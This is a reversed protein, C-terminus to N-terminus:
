FAPPPLVYRPPLFAHQSRTAPIVAASRSANTQPSQYYSPAANQPVSRNRVSAQRVPAPSASRPSAGATRATAARPVAASHVHSHPRRHTHPQRHGHRSRVAYSAPQGASRASAPQQQLQQRYYAGAYRPQPHHQPRYHQRYHRAMQRRRAMENWFAGTRDAVRRSMGRVADVSRTVTRTVLSGGHGEHNSDSPGSENRSVVRHGATRSRLAATPVVVGEPGDNRIAPQRAPSVTQSGTRSATRSATQSDTRSHTQSIASRRLRSRAAAAGSRAIARRQRDTQQSARRIPRADSRHSIASLDMGFLYRPLWSPRTKRGSPRQRHRAPVTSSERSIMSADSAERQPDPPVPAPKLQPLPRAPKETESDGEPNRIPTQDQPAPQHYALPQAHTETPTRDTRSATDSTVTDATQGSASTQSPVDTAVTDSPQTPDDTDSPGDTGAPADADHSEAAARPDDAANEQRDASAVASPTDQAQPNPPEQASSAAEDSPPETSRSTWGVAETDQGDAAHEDHSDADAAWDIEAPAPATEPAADDSSSAAVPLSESRDTTRMSVAQRHQQLLLRRHDDLRQRLEAILESRDSTEAIEHSLEAVATRSELRLENISQTLRTLTADIEALRQQQLESLATTQRALAAQQESLVQEQRDRIVQQGELVNEVHHTLEHLQDSLASDSFKVSVPHVTVPVYISTGEPTSFEHTEHQLGTTGPTIDIPFTQQTAVYNPQSDRPHAAHGHSVSARDAASPHPTAHGPPMPAARSSSEAAPRPRNLAAILAAAAFGVSILTAAALFRSGRRIDSSHNM